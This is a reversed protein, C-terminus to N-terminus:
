LHDVPSWKKTHKLYNKFRNAEFTTVSCLCLVVCTYMFHKLPEMDSKVFHHNLEGFVTEFECKPCTMLRKKSMGPCIYEFKQTTKQARIPQICEFKNHQNYM